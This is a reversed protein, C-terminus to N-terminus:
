KRRPFRRHTPTILEGFCLGEASYFLTGSLEFKYSRGAESSLAEFIERNRLRKMETESLNVVVTKEIKGGNHRYDLLKKFNQETALDLLAEQFGVFFLNGNDLQVTMGGAPGDKV